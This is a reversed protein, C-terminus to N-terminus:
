HWSYLSSLKPAGETSVELNVTPGFEISKGGLESSPMERRPVNSPPLRSTDVFWESHLNNKPPSQDVEWCPGSSGLCWCQFTMVRMAKDRRFAQFLVGPAVAKQWPKFINLIGQLKCESVMGTPGMSGAGRILCHPAKRRSAPPWTICTSWQFVQIVKGICIYRRRNRWCSRNRSCKLSLSELRELVIWNDSM